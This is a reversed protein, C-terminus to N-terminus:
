TCGTGPDTAIWMRGMVVYVNEMPCVVDYEEDWINCDPISERFKRFHDACAQRCSLYEQEGAGMWSFQESFCSTIGEIDHECYHMHMIRSALKKVDELRQHQGTDSETKVGM